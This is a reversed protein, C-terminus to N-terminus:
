KIDIQRIALSIIKYIIKTKFYNCNIKGVM